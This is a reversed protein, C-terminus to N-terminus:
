LIANIEETTLGLKKYASVKLAKQEDQKAKNTEHEAIDLERQAIFADKDKGTLEFVENDIGVFIQEDKSKAMTM